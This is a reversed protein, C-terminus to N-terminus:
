AGRSPSGNLREHLRSLSSEVRVGSDCIKDTMHNLNVLREGFRELVATQHEIAAILRGTGDDAMPKGRDQLWKVARMIAFAGLVSAILINAWNGAVTSTM